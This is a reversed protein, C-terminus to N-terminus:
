AHTIEEDSESSASSAEDVTSTRHNPQGAPCAGMDVGEDGSVATVPRQARAEDQSDTDFPEADPMPPEEDAEVPSLLGPPVTIRHITQRAPSHELDVDPDMRVRYTVEPSDPRPASVEHMLISAHHKLPTTPGVHRGVARIILVAAVTGILLSIALKLLVVIPGPLGVLQEVLVAPIVLYTVVWLMPAILLFALWAWGRAEFPWPMDTPGLWIFEQRRAADDTAIRTAM